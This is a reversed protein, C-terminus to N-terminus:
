RIVGSVRGPIIRIIVRQQNELWDPLNEPLEYGASEINAFVARTGEVLDATEVLAEGEVNVFSFPEQNSIVCLSVRPDQDITKRKFTFGPTSVLLEDGQRAYAVM